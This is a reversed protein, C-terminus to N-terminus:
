HSPENPCQPNDYAIHRTIQLSILISIIIKCFCRLRVRSLISHLFGVHMDFNPHLSKSERINRHYQSNLARTAGDEGAATAATGGNYKSAYEWGHAM